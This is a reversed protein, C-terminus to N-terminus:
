KQCQPTQWHQLNQNPTCRQGPRLMSPGRAKGWGWLKRLEPWVLIEFFILWDSTLVVEHSDCSMQWSNLNAHHKRQSNWHGIQVQRIWSFIDSSHFLYLLIKSLSSSSNLLAISSSTLVKNEELNLLLYLIKAPTSIIVWLWISRGIKLCQKDRKGHNNYFKCTKVKRWPNCGFM